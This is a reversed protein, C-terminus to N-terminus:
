VVVRRDVSLEELKISLLQSIGDKMSVGYIADAGRMTERNHTIIVFQTDKALERVLCIFRQSNVEDLAADIEDLVLFPPKRVTVLAFLLAISVLSREGGSLMGLGKIKKNPLEVKIEIGDSEKELAAKGGNFVLRFYDQFSASMTKLTTEFRGKIEQDIEKLLKELSSLTENIDNSERSLFEVRERM